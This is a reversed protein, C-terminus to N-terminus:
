PFLIDGPLRCLAKFFEIRGKALPGDGRIHKLSWYANGWYKGPQTGTIERGIALSEALSYRMSQTDTFGPFGATAPRAGDYCAQGVVVNKAVARWTGWDRRQQFGPFTSNSHSWHADSGAKWFSYSEFVCYDCVRALPEVTPHLQGLGVVGFTMKGKKTSVEDAAQKPSLAKSKHWPAEANLMISAAYGAEYIPGLENVVTEVFEPKRLAWPMLHTAIQKDCCFKMIDILEQKDFLLSFETQSSSVGFVIDSFGIDKVFLITDKSPLAFDAFIWTRM